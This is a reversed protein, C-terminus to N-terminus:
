TEFPNVLKLGLGDFDRVNRTALTAGHVLCIAAIQADLRMIPRGMGNRLASIEGFKMAARIEFPLLNGGFARLAAALTEHYRRSGNNKREHEYAGFALESVVPLPLFTEKPGARNLWTLVLESPRPKASESIINTDLAIM